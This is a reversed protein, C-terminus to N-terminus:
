LSIWGQVGDKKAYIKDSFRKEVSIIDGANVPLYYDTALNAVCLSGDDDNWVSMNPISLTRGTKIHRYIGFEEGKEILEIFRDNWTINLTGGSEPQNKEARIAPLSDVYKFTFKDDHIIFANLQGGRKITGGDIAIIRKGENIIPNHCPIQHCYNVTPLHGTIIYKDFVLDKEMFADTKMCERADQRNLDNFDNSSLGGHVFVYDNTKIIHPLSEIWETESDEIDEIIWDCNGRIVYVNNKKCLNIVYKLTEHVKPGKTYSDGLLILIDDSSFKIKELLLILLDLYGHIDSICIIRKEKPIILEIVKALNNM